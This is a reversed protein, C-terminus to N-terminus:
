SPVRFLVIVIGEIKLRLHSRTYRAKKTMWMSTMSQVNRVARWTLCFQDDKTWAHVKTREVWFGEFRLEDCVDAGEVNVRIGVLEETRRWCPESEVGPQFQDVM